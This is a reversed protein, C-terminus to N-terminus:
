AHTYYTRTEWDTVTAAFRAAEREKLALFLETLEPPFASKVWADTRTLALAEALSGPLPAPAAADHERRYRRYVNRETTPPPEIGSQVGDLGALLLAGLALYPNCAASAARAELRTGQGRAKPVRLYATRNDSGWSVSTPAYSEPQYRRYCNITPALFPAIGRAHRLIGGATHRALASLGDPAGADFFMNEGTELSKLSLHFHCGSGGDVGAPRAMFTVEAGTDLAIDKCLTKFLAGKDAADVAPSHAWNFEYQGAFFEHNCSQLGFTTSALADFLARIFGKPDNTRSATYCNCPVSVYPKLTGDDERTYAFFELECACMPEYGLAHYTDVVRKLFGRPSAPFAAGDYALDCQVFAEGQGIPLMELTSLDAVLAVDDRKDPLFSVEAFEDDYGLAMIASSCSMGNGDADLLAKINCLPVLKGRQIGLLDTFCARVARAQGQKLLIRAEDESLRARGTYIDHTM